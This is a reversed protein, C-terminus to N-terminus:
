GNTYKDAVMMCFNAVDACEDIVSGCPHQERIAEKLEAVEGDLLSLLRDLPCSMWGARDGKHRNLALKREMEDAFAEVYISTSSKNM